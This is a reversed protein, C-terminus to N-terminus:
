RACLVGVVFNAPTGGFNTVGTVWRRNRPGLSAPRSTTLAVSVSNSDFFDNIPHPRGRPCFGTAVEYQGPEVTGQFSLSVFKVGNRAHSSMKMKPGTNISSKGILAPDSGGGLGSSAFAGSAVLISGAAVLWPLRRRIIRV